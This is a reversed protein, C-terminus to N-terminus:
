VPRFAVKRAAVDVHSLRVRLQQGLPLDAGECRARVAPELLQVVGRTDGSEVVVADFTEDRRPALVVAEALDVVARELEQARRTAGAMVAPLDPL